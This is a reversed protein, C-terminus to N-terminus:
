FWISGFKNISVNMLKFLEVIHYTVWGAKHLSFQQKYVFWEPIM